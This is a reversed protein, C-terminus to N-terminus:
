QKLHCARALADVYQEPTWGSVISLEFMRSQTADTMLNFSYRKFFVEKVKDAFKKRNATAEAHLEALVSQSAQHILEPIQTHVLQTNSAWARLLNLGRAAAERQAKAIGDDACGRWHFAIEPADGEIEVWIEHRETM